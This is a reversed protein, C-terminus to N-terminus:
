PAAGLRFTGSCEQGAANTLVFDGEIVLTDLDLTGFLAADFREQTFLDMGDITVGEFVRSPCDIGGVVMPALFFAGKVTGEEIALKQEEPAVSLLVTVEGTIPVLLEAASCTFSGTYRGGRCTGAGPLTETWTFSVTPDLGPDPGSADVGADPPDPQAPSGGIPEAGADHALAPAGAGAPDPGLVPPASVAAFM